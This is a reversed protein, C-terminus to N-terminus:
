LWACCVANNRWSKNKIYQGINFENQCSAM